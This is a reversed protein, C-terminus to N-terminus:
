APADAPGTVRVHISLYLDRIGLHALSIPIRTGDRVHPPVIVEVPHTAWWVGHGDCQDCPAFGTSGTGRCRPCLHAVPVNVPIHGGGAAESPSLVIEISVQRAVQSKRRRSRSPSQRICDLIWDGESEHHALADALDYPAWGSGSTSPSVSGSPDLGAQMLARDYDARRAQDALAEYAETLQRYEDFPADGAQFQRSLRDFARRIQALDADPPVGLLAYYSVPMVLGGQAPWVRDAGRTEQLAPNQKHM